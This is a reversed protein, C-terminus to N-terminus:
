NNDNYMQLHCFIDLIHTIHINLSCIFPKHLNKQPVCALTGAAKVKYPHVEYHFPAETM